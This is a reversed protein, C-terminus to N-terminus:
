VHARGIQYYKYDFQNIPIDLGANVCYTKLDGFNIEKPKLGAFASQVFKIGMNILSIGFKRAITNVQEQNAAM